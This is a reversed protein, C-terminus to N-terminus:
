RPIDPTPCAENGPVEPLGLQQRIELSTEYHGLCTTYENGSYPVTKLATTHRDGDDAFTKVATSHRDGDDAFTKVATTHRDGDDAFTKVATSHRDGDDAFTKVATSHTREYETDAAASAQNAHKPGTEETDYTQSSRTSDRPNSEERENITSVTELETIDNPNEKPDHHHKSNARRRHLKCKSFFFNMLENHSMEHSKHDPYNCGHSM